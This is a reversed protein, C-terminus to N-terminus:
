LKNGHYVLEYGVLVNFPLVGTSANEQVPM